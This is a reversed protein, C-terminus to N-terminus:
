RSTSCGGRKTSRASASWSRGDGVRVPRGVGVARRRRRRRDRPDSAAPRERGEGPQRRLRDPVRAGQVRARDDPQRRRASRPRREVRRRGDALRHSRRHAGADRLRPEPHAPGPRADEEPEGVGASPAPRAARVRLGTEPLLQELLDAPPVRDVLALWGRCAGRARARARASGRRRARRRRPRSPTPSRRPWARRRAAGAGRDSLRVFRSRLFAAARLDSSPDRWTGSCRRRRGQDRRRRLLRAGQLRLDPHRARELEHEFERHSTRSRFLIAIDGPRAPARCAPRAIASRRGRAPHAAIEAAVAAACATPTTRWRSASRRAASRSRAARSRGSLSRRRRLHLRRAAGAPRRCRPSCRRQRLGAAGAGRPLQARDIAAADGAPRLAEIYRGAEQLM